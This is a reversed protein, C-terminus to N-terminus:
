KIINIKGTQIIRTYSLNSLVSQFHDQDKILRLFMKKFFIKYKKNRVEVCQLQRATFDNEVNSEMSLEGIKM